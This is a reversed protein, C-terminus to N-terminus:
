KNNKQWLNIAKNLRILCIDRDDVLSSDNVNNLAEKTDTIYRKIFQAEPEIFPLSCVAKLSLGGNELNLVAKPNKSLAEALSVIIHTTNGADSGNFLHPAINIWETDGSAIQEMAKNWQAYNDKTLESVLKSAGLSLYLENIQKITIDQKSTISQENALLTNITLLVMLLSSIIIRM